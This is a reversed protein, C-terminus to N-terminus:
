ARSRLRRFGWLAAYFAGAGLTDAVVDMVEAGRGPIFHQIVEITIGYAILLLMGLWVPPAFALHLSAALVFFLAFHVLKDLHPIHNVSVTPPSQMLFLGSVVVFILGFVLRGHGKLWEIM